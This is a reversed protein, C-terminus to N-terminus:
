YITVCTQLLMASEAFIRILKQKPEGCHVCVYNAEVYTEKKEIKDSMSPFRQFKRILCINQCSSQLQIPPQWKGHDANGYM